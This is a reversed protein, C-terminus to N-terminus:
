LPSRINAGDDFYAGLDPVRLINLPSEPDYVCGPISYAHHKNRDYTLVLHLDGVLKKTTTLGEATILTINMLTLPGTFM